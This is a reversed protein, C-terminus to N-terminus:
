IDEIMERVYTPLVFAARHIEENYYRLGTTKSFEKAKADDFDKLPNHGSKAAMSFSWMGSTYTPVFALYTWANDKGFIERHCKAVACFTEENFRPSESQTVLVGTPTLARHLDRYFERSFLGKAQGVPDPSDVIIVDFSNDELGKAYEIGNIIE